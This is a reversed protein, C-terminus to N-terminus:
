LRAGHMVTRMRRHRRMRLTAITIVVAALVIPITWWIPPAQFTIILCTAFFAVMASVLM